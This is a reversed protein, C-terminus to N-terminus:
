IPKVVTGDFPLLPYYEDSRAFDILAGIKWTFAFLM